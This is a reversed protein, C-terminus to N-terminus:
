VRSWGVGPAADDGAADAFTCNVVRYATFKVRATSRLM